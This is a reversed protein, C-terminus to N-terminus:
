WHGGHQKAGKGGLLVIENDVDEDADQEEFHSAFARNIEKGDKDDEDIEGDSDDDEKAKNILVHVYGKLTTYM